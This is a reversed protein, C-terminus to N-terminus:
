RDLSSLHQQMAQIMNNYHYEGLASRSSLIDFTPIKPLLFMNPNITSMLLLCGISSSSTCIASSRSINRENSRFLSPLKVCSSSPDRKLDSPRFGLGSCSSVLVAVTQNLKRLKYCKHCRVEKWSLRWICIVLQPLQKPKKISISIPKDGRGLQGMRHGLQPMRKSCLLQSPHDLLSIQISIPHNIKLLEGKDTPFIKGGRGGDTSIGNLSYSMLFCPHVSAFVPVLIAYEQPIFDKHIFHDSDLAYVPLVYRPSM